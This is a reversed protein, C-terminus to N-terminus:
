KKHRKGDQEKGKHHRHSQQSPDLLLQADYVVAMGNWAEGMILEEVFSVMWFLHDEAYFFLLLTKWEYESTRYVVVADWTKQFAVVM